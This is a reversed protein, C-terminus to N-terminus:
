LREQVGSLAHASRGTNRKDLLMNLAKDVEMIHKEERPVSIFVCSRFRAAESGAEAHLRRLTEDKIKYVGNLQNVVLMSDSSLTIGSDYGYDSGAKKLAFIIATYEAVNNTRVGNFFSGKALVKGGIDLIMYGSASPGPNGRAAGDTYIHLKM